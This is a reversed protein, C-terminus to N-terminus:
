AGRLIATATLLPIKILLRRLITLETLKRGGPGCLSKVDLPLRGRITKELWSQSAIIIKRQKINDCLRPGLM